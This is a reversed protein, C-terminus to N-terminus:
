RLVHTFLRQCNMKGHAGGHHSMAAPVVKALNTVHCSGESREEMHALVGPLMEYKRMLRVMLM